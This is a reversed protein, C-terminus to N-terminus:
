CPLNNIKTNEIVMGINPLVFPQQNQMEWTFFFCVYQTRFILTFYTSKEVLKAMSEASKLIETCMRDQQAM